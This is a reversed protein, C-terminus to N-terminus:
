QGGSTGGGGGAGDGRTAQVKTADLSTGASLM